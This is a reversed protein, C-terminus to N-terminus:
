IKLNWEEILKERLEVLKRRRRTAQASLVVEVGLPALEAGLWGASCGCWALALVPINTLLSLAHDFGLGAVWLHWAPALSAALGALLSARTVAHGPSRDALLCLLGPALLVLLLVMMSPAAVMIAGAALGQIATLGGSSRPTPAASKSM